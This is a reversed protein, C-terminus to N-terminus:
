EILQALLRKGEEWEGLGSDDGMHDKKGINILESGLCDAFYRAKVLSLFPDNNSILLLSPFPLKHLPLADFGQIALEKFVTSDPDPLAALFAGKIKHLSNAGEKSNAWCVITSSGLSHGILTLPGEAAQIASDLAAVWSERDPKVWDKQVIRISDPFFAHWRTQWHKHGSDAYGPVIILTM